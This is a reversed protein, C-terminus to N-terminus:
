TGLLSKLAKSLGVGKAHHIRRGPERDGWIKTGRGHTGQEMSRDAFDLRVVKDETMEKATRDTELRTTSDTWRTFEEWCWITWLSGDTRLVWYNQEHYETYKGRAHTEIHHNTSHLIWYPGIVQENVRVSKTTHVIETRMGLFGARRTETSPVSKSVQHTMEPSPRVTTQRAVRQAFQRLRALDLITADYQTM